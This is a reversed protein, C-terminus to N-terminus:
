FITIAMNGASLIFAWFSSCQVTGDLVMMEPGNGPLELYYTRLIETMEEMGTIMVFLIAVHLLRIRWMGDISFFLVLLPMLYAVILDPVDSVAALILCIAGGALQPWPMRFRRDFCAYAGLHYLALQEAYLLLTGIM